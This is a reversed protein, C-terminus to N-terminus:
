RNGVVSAAAADARRAAHEEGAFPMPSPVESLPLPLLPVSLAVVEVEACDPEPDAEPALEDLPEALVAPPLPVPLPDAVPLEPDDEVLAV